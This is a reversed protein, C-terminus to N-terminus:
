KMNRSALWYRFQTFAIGGFLGVTIGTALSVGVCDASCLKVDDSNEEAGFGGFGSGAGGGIGGSPPIYPLSPTEEEEEKGDGAPPAAPPRSPTGGGFPPLSPRPNISPPPITPSSPPVVSPTGASPPSFFSPVGSPAGTRGRAWHIVAQWPSTYAVKTKGQVPPAKQQKKKEESQLFEYAKQFENRQEPFESWTNGQDLETLWDDFSVKLGTKFGGCLSPTAVSCIETGYSVSANKFKENLFDELNFRYVNGTGEAQFIRGTTQDITVFSPHCADFPHNTYYSM